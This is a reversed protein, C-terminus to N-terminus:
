KPTSRTITCFRCADASVSSPIKLKIEEMSTIIRYLCGKEVSAMVLPFWM